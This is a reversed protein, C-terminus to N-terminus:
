VLHSSFRFFGRTASEGQMLDPLLVVAPIRQAYADALARMNRFEWGFADPAIVVIGVPEAPPAPRAVYTPLGHITEVSGAPEVDGRLTGEFCKACFKPLADPM